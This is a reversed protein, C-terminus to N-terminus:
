ISKARRAALDKMAELQRSKRRQLEDLKGLKGLQKSRRRDLAAIKEIQKSKKREIVPLVEERDRYIIYHQVIFVIDFSMSILALGLKTFNTILTKWDNFNFAIILM